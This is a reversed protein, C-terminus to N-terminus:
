TAWRAPHGHGPGGGDLLGDTVSLGNGGGEPTIIGFPVSLITVLIGGRNRSVTLRRERKTPIAVYLSM